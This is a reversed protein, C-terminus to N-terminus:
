GQQLGYAAVFAAQDAYSETILGDDSMQCIDIGGSPLEAASIARMGDINIAMRAIRGGVDNLACMASYIANARTATLIKAEANM